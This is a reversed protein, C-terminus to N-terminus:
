RSEVGTMIAVEESRSAMLCIGAEPGKYKNEGRDPISKEGPISLIAQERGEKLDSEFTM